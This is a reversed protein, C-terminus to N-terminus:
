LTGIFEEDEWMEICWRGDTRPVVVYREGESDRNNAEAIAEAKDLTEFATNLNLLDITIM